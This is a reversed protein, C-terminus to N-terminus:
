CAKAYNAVACRTSGDYVHIVDAFLQHGACLTCLSKNSRIRIVIPLSAMMVHGPTHLFINHGVAPWPSASCRQQANQSCMSISKSILDECLNCM